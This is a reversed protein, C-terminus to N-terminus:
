FLEESKKNPTLRSAQSFIQQRGENAAYIKPIRGPIKKPESSVPLAYSSQSWEDKM